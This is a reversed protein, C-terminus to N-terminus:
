RFCVVMYMDRAFFFYCLVVDVGEVCGGILVCGCVGCFGCCCLLLLVAMGDGYVVCWLGGGILVRGLM